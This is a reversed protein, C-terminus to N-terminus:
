LVLSSSGMVRYISFEEHKGFGHEQQYGSIRCTWCFTLGNEAAFQQVLSRRLMLIQGARPTLDANQMESMGATWDQWFGVDGDEDRFGIRDRECHVRYVGDHALAPLPLWPGRFARWWQWRPIM